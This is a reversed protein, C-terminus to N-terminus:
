QAADDAASQAGRELVLDAREAQAAQPLRRVHRRVQRQRGGRSSSAGSETALVYDTSHCELCQPNSGQGIAKLANLANAHGEHSWENYQTAGEEHARANYPLTETGLTYYIMQQPATTSPVLLYYAIPEPTWPPVTNYYGLPSFNGRTYQRLASTGDSNPYPEISNSYRSHCQGCIDANAMNAMPVSHAASPGANTPENKGWHCASCGVFPESFADDGYPTRGRTSVPRQM